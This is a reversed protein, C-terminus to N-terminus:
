CSAPPRLCDAELAAREHVPQARSAGGALAELTYTGIRQGYVTVNSTM